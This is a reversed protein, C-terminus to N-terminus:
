SRVRFPRLLNVFSGAPGAPVFEDPHPNTPCGLFLAGLRQAEVAVRDFLPHLVRFPLKPVHFRSGLNESPSLVLAILLGSAPLDWLPYNM